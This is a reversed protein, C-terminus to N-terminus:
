HQSLSFVEKHPENITGVQTQLMHTQFYQREGNNCSNEIGVFYERDNCKKEEWAYKCLIRNLRKKKMKELNNNLEGPKLLSTHLSFYYRKNSLSLTRFFNSLNGPVWDIRQTEAFSM